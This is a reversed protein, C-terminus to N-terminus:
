DPSLFLVRRNGLQHIEAAAYPEGMLRDMLNEVEEEVKKFDILGTDSAEQNEEIVLKLNANSLTVRDQQKGIKETKDHKEPPKEDNNLQRIPFVDTNVKM